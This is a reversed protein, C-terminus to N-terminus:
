RGLGQDREQVELENGLLRDLSITRGTAELVRMGAPINPLVREARYGVSRDVAEALRDREADTAPRHRFVITLNNRGM